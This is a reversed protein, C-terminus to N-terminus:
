GTPQAAQADDPLLGLQSMFELQDFYIHYATISGDAVRWVNAVRLRLSAGTAPIEGDPTVM